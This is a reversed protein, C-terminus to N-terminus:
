LGKCGFYFGWLKTGVWWFTIWHLLVNREFLSRAFGCLQAMMIWKKLRLWNKSKGFFQLYSM